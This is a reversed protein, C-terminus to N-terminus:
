WTSTSSAAATAAGRGASTASASRDRRPWSPTRTPNGDSHNDGFEGVVISLGNNVFHNLYDQVEAATDYVGYLHISFITSRHPDSAFVSAANSRMTNSRDQGWNPADVM